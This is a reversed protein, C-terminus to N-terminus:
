PREDLLGQIADHLPDKLNQALARVHRRVGEPSIPWIERLNYLIQLRLYEDSLKELLTMMDECVGAYYTKARERDASIMDKATEPTWRDLLLIQHRRPLAGTTFQTVIFHWYDQPHTNAFREAIQGVTAKPSGNALAAVLLYASDEPSLRRIAQLLEYSVRQRVQEEPTGSATVRLYDAWVPLVAKAKDHRAPDNLANTALRIYRDSTVSLYNSLDRPGEPSISFLKPLVAFLIMWDETLANLELMAMSGIKPNTTTAVFGKLIEIRDPTPLGEMFQLIDHFLLYRNPRSTLLMIALKAKDDSPLTQAYYIWRSGVPSIDSHTQDSLEVMEWYFGLRQGEFLRHTGIRDIGLQLQRAHALRESSDLAKLAAFIKRALLPSQRVEPIFDLIACWAIAADLDRHVLAAIRRVVQDLQSPTLNVLVKELGRSRLHENLHLNTENSEHKFHWTNEPTILTPILVSLPLQGYTFLSALPTPLQTTKESSFEGGKMHAAYHRDERWQGGNGLCSYAVPGPIAPAYEKLGLQIYAAQAEPTGQERLVDLYLLSSDILVECTQGNIGCHLDSFLADSNPTEHYWAAERVRSQEFNVHDEAAQVLSRGPYLTQAAAMHILPNQTRAAWDEIDERGRAGREKIYLTIWERMEGLVTAWPLPKGDRNRLRHSLDTVAMKFASQGVQLTMTGDRVTPNLETLLTAALWDQYATNWPASLLDALLEAKGTATMAQPPLTKSGHADSFSIVITAPKGTMPEREAILHYLTAMVLPQLFESVGHLTIHIPDHPALQSAALIDAMAIPPRAGLITQPPFTYVPTTTPTPSSPLPVTPPVLVQALHRRPTIRTM